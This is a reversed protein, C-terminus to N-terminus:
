FILRLAFNLRRGSGFRGQSNAITSTIRGFDESNLNGIPNTFQSSNTVNYYETRFEIKSGETLSYSRFMSVDYNFLEPGRVSNRAVNGFMNPVPQGFAATEFFLGDGIEGPGLGSTTQPDRLVDAFNLRNGPCNCLLSDATVSVSTGSAWTLIGNVQWRGLLWGILGKNWRNTGAGFPAEWMHSFTFMHKRDFDALGYNRGRNINNILFSEGTVEDLTKSWTYAATFGLKDSFRKTVSTQLANYNSVAENATEITRATRGLTGNLPLSAIGGGPTGANFERRFPLHRGLSGVYAVDFVMGDSLEREYTFNYTQVSATERDSSIFSLPQKPDATVTGDTPVSTFPIPPLPGAPVYTGSIGQQVSSIAPFLSGTAFGVTNPFYNLSYGGRIVSRDSLQFAFGFRPSINLYDWEVGARSNIDGLGAIQLMNTIPDYNSLGGDNAPRVPSFIEYRVGFDLMLRPSFRISDNAFGSFFWRRYSPDLLEVTDTVVTPADLLFSAFSNPFSGASPFFPAAPPATPGPGFEFTRGSGINLPRFGDVRLHRADGGFKFSHRGTPNWSWTNAVQWNNDIWNLPLGTPAGVALMRSIEIREMDNFGDINNRFRDYSGRVNTVLNPSFSHAWGLAAHQSRARAEGGQGIMRGIPDDDSVFYKGYQYHGFLSTNDSWRYDGRSGARHSDNRLPAFSQLNNGVGPRNPDAFAGLIQQSRDGFRRAPIRNDAFPRRGMGNRDGTAPDFLTLGSVSSFDGERFGAMPVTGFQPRQYDVFRGEYNGFFFLKDSSPVPGGFTAGFQNSRFEAKDNPEPMSNFFDGSGFEDLSNFWYATGHYDKDGSRLESNVLSGGVRGVEAQQSSNRVNMQQIAEVPPVYVSLHKAPETNRSGDLDWSNANFAQGNSNFVRNRQPDILVSSTTTPPTVGPMLRVLEQYNRDIIPLERVSRTDFSQNREGSERQLLPINGTANVTEEANGPVVVLRVNTAGPTSVVVDEQILRNFAPVEVEIRYAGLTLGAITFSGDAATLVRESRKSDIHTIMLSAHSVTEGSISTVVGTLTGSGSGAAQSWLLPVCAFLLSVIKLKYLRM